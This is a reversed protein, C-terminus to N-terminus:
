EDLKKLVATHLNELYAADRPYRNMTIEYDLGAHVLKVTEERGIKAELTRLLRLDNLALTFIEYHLSDFQSFDAATNHTDFRDNKQYIYKLDFHQCWFSSLECTSEFVVNITGGSKESIQKENLPILSNTINLHHEPCRHCTPDYIVSDTKTEILERFCKHGRIDQKPDGKLIIDIGFSDLTLFIDKMYADIDQAEDVYISRCYSM